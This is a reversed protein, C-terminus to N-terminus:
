SEQGVVPMPIEIISVSPGLSIEQLSDKLIPYSFGLASGIRLYTVKNSGLVRSEDSKIVERASITHVAIDAFIRSPKTNFLSFPGQFDSEIKFLGVVTPDINYSAGRGSSSLLEKGAGLLVFISRYATNDFANAWEQELM